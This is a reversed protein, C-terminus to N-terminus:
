LLCSANITGNDVPLGGPLDMAADSGDSTTNLQEREGKFGRQETIRSNSRECDEFRRRLCRPQPRRRAIAWVGGLALLSALMILSSPEPVTTVSIDRASLLEIVQDPLQTTIDLSVPGTALYNNLLLTLDTSTVQGSYTFDGGAWGVNTALYNSLLTTLDSSTVQGSGDCDGYVAPMITVQHTTANDWYGLGIASAAQYNSDASTDYIQSSQFPSVGGNFATHLLSRITDKPDSGTTYDLVLKGGTVNAGAAGSGIVPTQAAANLQLVGANVTTLGTYNNAGTLILAGSGTKTLGAQGGTVAGTFTLSTAANQVDVAGGGAGLAFGRDTSINPSTGTFQLIGGNKLTLDGTGLNCAKGKGAITSVSLVGQSITIPGSFSNNGSLILTGAGTKVLNPALSETDGWIIASIKLTGDVSWQQDDGLQVSAGNSGAITQTVGTQAVAITTAGSSSPDLYFSNDLGIQVTLPTSVNGNFTLSQVDPCSGVGDIVVTTQATNWGSAAFVYDNPSGDSPGTGGWNGPFYWSDSSGDGGTWTYTTARAPLSASLIAALATVATAIRDVRM